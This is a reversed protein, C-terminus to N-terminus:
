LHHPQQTWWGHHPQEHTFRRGDSKRNRNAVFESRVERTVQQSALATLRAVSIQPNNNLALAEAQKLSLTMQTGPNAPTDSSSHGNAPWVPRPKSRCPSRRPASPLSQVTPQQDAQSNQAYGACPVLAICLIFLSKMKM